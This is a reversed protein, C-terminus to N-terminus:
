RIPLKQVLLTIATLARTPKLSIGSLSFTPRPLTSVLSRQVRRGFGTSGWSDYPPPGSWFTRGVVEKTTCIYGDRTELGAFDTFSRLWSNVNSFWGLVFSWPIADFAVLAPNLLGFQNLLHVNPNVLRVDIGLATRVSTQYFEIGEGGIPSSPPQVVGPNGTSQAAARISGWPVPQDFVECATYIDQVAPKWGFWFELWLDSLSRAVGYRTRMVRQVDRLSLGLAAAVGLPSRRVLAEGFRLLQGGRKRIMEDAQKWQVLTLGLSAQDGLKEVLRDYARSYTTASSLGNALESWRVGPDPHGYNPRGPPVVGKSLQYPLARDYPVNQRYWTASEYNYGPISRSFPGTILSGM